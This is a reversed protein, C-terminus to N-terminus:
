APPRPARARLRDDHGARELTSSRGSTSRRSRTTTPSSRSPRRTSCRRASPRSRSAHAPGPAAAPVDLPSRAPCAARATSRARPLHRGARQRTFVFTASRTRPRRRGPGSHITTIPPTTDGITWEWEEWPWARRARRARDGPRRVPARRRGPRHLHGALHLRDSRATWGASSPRAPCTRRSPSPRARARPRGRGPRLPDDDGAAARGDVHLAGADPRRQRRRRGRARAARAPRADPRLVARPSSCSNYATGDLACEFTLNAPPTRNDSGTFTFTAITDLTSPDAARLHDDHEPRTADPGLEVLWEYSTPPEEVISEGERTASVGRVEFEHTGNEVVWRPTRRRAPRSTAGDLSCEFTSGPQDATFAFIASEDTSPAPPSAPRAPDPRGPRLHDDDVPAPVITWTRTPPRRTSTAPWTSRASASPTRAPSSRQGDRALRVARVAAGDVSCEFTLDLAGPTANDTGFFEFLRRPRAPAPRDPRRPHRHRAARHRGDITWTYRSRRRTSTARSTRTAPRSCRSPSTSRACRSRTRGPRWSSTRRVHLPRAPQVPQRVRVLRARQHQRRPVRLTLLAPPTQDDTGTFEFITSSSGDAPARELTRRPRRHRRVARRGGVRLGAAELESVGNAPRDRRRAAHPRRRLLGTYTVPSTCPAFPELDLSCEFTADAVNSEFDITATSSQCRAAPRRARRETGPTFGPGATFITVVGLLRWTYTAPPGVNGEFDIARVSFTHLGVETEELGWEFAGQYM